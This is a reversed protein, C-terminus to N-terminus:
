KIHKWTKRRKINSVTTYDINYKKAIEKLPKDSLRICRIDSETLHTRYHNEGKYDKLGTDWCHRENEERSCWELNDVHNNIKNGDKHNVEKLMRENPIFHLAVLRSVRFQKRRISIVKYGYKNTAQRLEKMKKNFVRGSSSIYYDENGAIQKLKTM